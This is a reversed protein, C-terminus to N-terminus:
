FAMCRGDRIIQTITNGMSPASLESVRVKTITLEM